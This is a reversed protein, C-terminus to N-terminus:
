KISLATSVHMTAENLHKIFTMQKRGVTTYGAGNGGNGVFNQMQQLVDLAERLQNDSVSQQMKRAGKAAGGNLATTKSPTPFYAGMSRGAKAISAMAKVRHGKYDHDATALLQFSYQLGQIVEGAMESNYPMNAAYRMAMGRSMRFRRAACAPQPTEVVTLALTGIIAAVKWRQVSM